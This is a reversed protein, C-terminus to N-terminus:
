KKAENLKNEYIGDQAKTIMENSDLGIIKAISRLVEIDGINKGETFYEYFVKSHFEHFKGKGKAYETALLAMHTNPMLDAGAFSVGYKNGINNINAFM